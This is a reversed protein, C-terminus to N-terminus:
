HAMKAKASNDTLTHRLFKEICEDLHSADKWGVRGAPSHAHISDGPYLVSCYWAALSERARPNGVDLCVSWGFACSGVAM